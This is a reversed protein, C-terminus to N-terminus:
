LVLGLISVFGYGLLAVWAVNLVVGLIIIAAPWIREFLTTRINSARHVRSHSPDPDNLPKTKTSAPRYGTVGTTALRDPSYASWTLNLQDYRELTVSM